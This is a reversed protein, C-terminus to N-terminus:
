AASRKLTRAAIRAIRRHQIEDIVVGVGPGREGLGGPAASGNAREKGIVGLAPGRAVARLQDGQLQIAPQEGGALRSKKGDGATVEALEFQKGSGCEL